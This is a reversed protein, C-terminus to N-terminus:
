DINTKKLCNELIKVKEDTKKNLRFFANLKSNISRQYDKHNKHFHAHGRKIKECFEEATKTFFHKIFAKPNKKLKNSFFNKPYILEGNSNCFNYINIGPIHETPIILNKINGRVFSKGQITSKAPNTFRELLNRKDYRILNNDNYIIWNFFVTQCKNFIKNYFYSKISEENEIYLYEDLDIFGIWNYLEFNKRYCYNYIPIQISSLGRVDIIEIFKNKIYDSLIIDFNEGEIDNNDYLFIKDIGLKQYYEVFERIYLNENKGITCICINLYKQKFSYDNISKSFKPKTYGNRYYDYIDAYIKNLSNTLELKEKIVKYTILHNKAGKNDINNKYNIKNYNNSSFERKNYIKKNEHIINYSFILILLIFSINLLYKLKLSIKKIM